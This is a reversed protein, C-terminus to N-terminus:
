LRDIEGICNNTRIIHICPFPTYIKDLRIKQVGPFKRYGQLSVRCGFWKFVYFFAHSISLGPVKIHRVM